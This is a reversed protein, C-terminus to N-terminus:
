QRAPPQPSVSGGSPREPVRVIKLRPFCQWPRWIKVLFYDKGIRNNNEDLGIIVDLKGILIEREKVYKNSKELRNRKKVEEM